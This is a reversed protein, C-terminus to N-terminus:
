AGDDYTDDEISEGEDEEFADEDELDEDDFAARNDFGDDYDRGAEDFGQTYTEDVAPPDDSGAARIEALADDIESVDDIVEMTVALDDLEDKALSSAPFFGSGAIYFMVTAVTFHRMLNGSPCSVQGIAVPKSSPPQQRIVDNKM